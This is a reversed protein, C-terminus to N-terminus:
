ARAGLLIHALTWVRMKMVRVVLNSRSTYRTARQIANLIHGQPFEIGAGADQVASHTFHSVLSAATLTPLLSNQVSSSVTVKVFRFGGYTFSPTFNIGERAVKAVTTIYTMNAVNLNPGGVSRESFQLRFVLTTSNPDRNVGMRMGMRAGMRVRTPPLSLTITAAANQGLDYSYVAPAGHVTHQKEFRVASFTESRRVTPTLTTRLGGIVALDKGTLATAPTWDSADFTATTWGPTEATADYAVGEFLGATRYPSATRTWGKGSVLADTKTGNAAVLSLKLRLGKIGTVPRGTDKGGYWGSALVCGMANEGSRLLGLVDWTDYLIRQEFTTYHGLEHDSVEVGNLWCKYYALGAM